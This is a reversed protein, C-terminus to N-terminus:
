KETPFGSSLESRGQNRTGLGGVVCAKGDYVVVVVQSANAYWITHEGAVLRYAAIM